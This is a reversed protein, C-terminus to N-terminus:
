LAVICIELHVKLWKKKKKNCSAASFATANSRKSTQTGQPTLIQVKAGTCCTLQTGTSFESSSRVSTRRSDGTGELAHGGAGGGGVVVKSSPVNSSFQVQKTTHLCELVHSVLGLAVSHLCELQTLM